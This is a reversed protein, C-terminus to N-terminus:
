CEEFRQIDRTQLRAEAQQHAALNEFLEREEPINALQARLEYLATLTTHAQTVNQLIHQVSDCGFCLPIRALKDPHDFQQSDVLWTNLLHDDAREIYQNMAQHMRQERDALYELTMRKREDAQGEALTQYQTGLTQHFDAIWHLLDNIQRFAM